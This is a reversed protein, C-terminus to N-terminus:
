QEPSWEGAQTDKMGQVEVLEPSLQPQPTLPSVIFSPEVEWSVSESDARPGTERSTM